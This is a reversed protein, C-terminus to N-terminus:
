FGIPLMLERSLCVRRPWGWKIDGNKCIFLYIILLYYSRNPQGAVLHKAAWCGCHPGPTVGTWRRGEHADEVTFHTLGEDCTEWGQSRPVPGLRGVRRDCRRAARGGVGARSAFAATVEAARGAVIHHQLVALALPWATSPIKARALATVCSMPIHLYPERVKRAAPIKRRRLALVGDVVIAEEVYEFPGPTM